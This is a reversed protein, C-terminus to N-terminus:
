VECPLGNAWDPVKQDVAELVGVGVGDRVWCSGTRQSWAELFCLLVDTVQERQHLHPLAGANGRNTM